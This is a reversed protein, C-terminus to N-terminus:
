SKTCSDTVTDTCSKSCTDTYQVNCNVTQPTCEATCDTEFSCNGSLQITEAKATSSLTLATGFLAVSTVSGLLRVMPIGEKFSLADDTVSARPVRSQLGRAKRSQAVARRHM